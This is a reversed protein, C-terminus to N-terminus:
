PTEGVCQLPGPQGSAEVLARLAAELHDSQEPLRRSLDNVEWRDDPKAYLQPGREDTTTRPLLYAWDVTRLLWEEEDGQRLATLASSRVAEATGLALPRLSHGQVEPVPVGLWDGLTPLLDIPQTLAAVRRGSEAAGPLRWILPLHVLEDHLWPRAAGIVGHEGLPLGSSATIWLAIEDLAGHRRLEDLLKGLLADWYTVVAAYTYQLRHLAFVDFVGPQPPPDPWPTQPEETEAEDFYVNLVDEPLHWPPALDPGAIWLVPCDEQRWRTVVPGLRDFDALAAITHQACRIGGALTVAGAPESSVAAVPGAYRGTGAGRARLPTTLACEPRDALHQDFVIGEAALGDLNPTAVWDNGYCGLYGAHLGCAELVLIKM